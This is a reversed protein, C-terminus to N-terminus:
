NTILLSALTRGFALVWSNTITILGHVQVWFAITLRVYICQGEIMLEENGRCDRTDELGNSKLTEGRRKESRNKEITCM